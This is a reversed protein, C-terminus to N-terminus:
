LKFAFEDSNSWQIIKFNHLELGKKLHAHREKNLNKFEYNIYKLDTNLIDSELIIKDDYGEADIQLLDLKKFNNNSNIVDLLKYSQIENCLIKNKDVRKSISDLELSSVGRQKSKANIETYFKLKEGNGILKNECYVNKFNKYNIKLNKFSEEDAEIALLRIEEHFLTVLRFLPDSTKGDMAGIQVINFSNDKKIKSIIFGELFSFKDKKNFLNRKIFNRTDNLTNKWFM